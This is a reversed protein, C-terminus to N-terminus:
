LKLKNINYIDQLTFDNKHEKIHNNSLFKIKNIKEQIKKPLDKKKIGKYEDKYKNLQSTYDNCIKCNEIRYIHKLENDMYKYYKKPILKKAKKPMVLLTYIDVDLPNMDSKPIEFKINKTTTIYYLIDAPSPCDCDYIYDYMSCKTTQYMNLCWLLGSIYESVANKCYTNKNIKKNKKSLLDNVNTMFEKFFTINILKRNVLSAQNIRPDFFSTEKITGQIITGHTSLRTENYANWLTEYKVFKMKNIYDNGLMFTVFVFDDRINDNKLKIINYFIDDDIKYNVLPLHYKPIMEKSHAIILKEISVIYQFKSYKVYININYIPKTALGLLIIDADSGVILHTDSLDKIGYKRIRKFIKIEGEDVESIPSIEFEPKLYKYNNKVIKVYEQLYKEMRIMFPTGTTLHLPNMKDVNIKDLGMLRRSRQKIVKSYVAPGDLVMIIKKRAIFSNLIM